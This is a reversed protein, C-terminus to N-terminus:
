IGFEIKLCFGSNLELLEEEERKKASLLCYKLCPSFM